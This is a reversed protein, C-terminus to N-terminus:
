TLESSSILSDALKTNLLFGIKSATLLILFSSMKEFSVSWEGLTTFGFNLALLVLESSLFFGSFVPAM